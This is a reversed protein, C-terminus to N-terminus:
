DGLAVDTPPFKLRRLGALLSLKGEPHHKKSTLTCRHIMLCRGHAVEKLRLQFPVGIQRSPSVTPHTGIRDHFFPPSRRPSLIMQLRLSSKVIGLTLPHRYLDLAEPLSRFRSHDRHLQEIM